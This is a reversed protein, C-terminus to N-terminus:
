QYRDEEDESMTCCDPYYRREMYPWCYVKEDHSVDDWDNQEQAKNRMLQEVQAQNEPVIGYYFLDDYPEDLQIQLYRM